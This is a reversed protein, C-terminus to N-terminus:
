LAKYKRSEIKISGEAELKKAWKSIAGKSVGMEEALGTADDIGERILDLMAEQGIYPRCAYTLHGGGTHLTWRLPPADRGPCNRCKAFSTIFSTSEGEKTDDKLSIIWHAMDERRSAGRMVGSKGAHHVFVVTIHRKRLSLLWEKLKDFDDNDNEALGAAGTSLNDVILMDGDQLIDSLALQDSADAINLSRERTNFIIENQLWLFKEGSIGISRARSQVDPLNMEADFYVVRTTKGGAAWEGLGAREAIANGLLMSLWSKGHGRPAFIYGFDGERLWAGLLRPREDLPMALLDKGTILAKCLKDARESRKAEEDTPQPAPPPATLKERLALREEPSATVNFDTLDKKKPETSM